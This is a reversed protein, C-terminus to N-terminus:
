THENPDSATADAPVTATENLLWENIVTYTPGKPGLVSRILQVRDIPLSVAPLDLAAAANAVDSLPLAGNHLRALTVHPKFSRKDKSVEDSGAANIARALSRLRAVDGDLGLWLVRARSTSPFAGVGATQLLMHDHRAAICALERQIDAVAQQDSDGYFRLTIHGLRPDVWRVPWTNAKLRNQAHQMVARVNDNLPAAAFVRWREGHNESQEDRPEREDM